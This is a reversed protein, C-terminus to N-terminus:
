RRPPLQIQEVLADAIEINSMGRDKIETVPLVFENDQSHSTGTSFRRVFFRAATNGDDGTTFGIQAESPSQGAPAKSINFGIDFQEPGCAILASAGTGEFSRWQSKWEHAALLKEGTQILIASAQELYGTLVHLEDELISPEYKIEDGSMLQPWHYPLDKKFRDRDFGRHLMEVLLWAEIEASSKGDVELSHPVSKGNESFQLILSPLRLQLVTGAAIEPTSLVKDDGNWFLATDPLTEHPAAFSRAMRALWQALNQTEDRAKIFRNPDAIAAAFVQMGSVGTDSATAACVARGAPSIINNRAAFRGSCIV